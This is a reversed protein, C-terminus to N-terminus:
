AIVGRARARLKSSSVENETNEYKDYGVNTVVTTNTAILAAQEDAPLSAFDRDGGKTFVDFLGLEILPAQHSCEVEHIFVLDVGRIARVVDARTRADLFLEGGLKDRTSWDGNVVVTLHTETPLDLSTLLAEPLQKSSVINSIHNKHIPNFFGSTAVKAKGSVAALHQKLEAYDTVVPALTSEIAREEYPKQQDPYPRILNNQEM